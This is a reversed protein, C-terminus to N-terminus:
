VFSFRRFGLLGLLTGRSHRLIAAEAQKTQHASLCEPTWPEPLEPLRELQGRELQGVTM